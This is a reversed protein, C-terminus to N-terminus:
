GGPTATRLQYDLRSIATQYEPEVQYDSHIRIPPYAIDGDGYTDAPLIKVNTPGAPPKPRIEGGIPDTSRYLNDWRGGVRRNLEMLTAQNFFAPFWPAYLHQLPSGYTLVATQDRVYQPLQLVVATAIISGQSHASVIIDRGKDVHWKTRSAFEPLARDTYCPPALPHAHRPWFTTLDWLIGVSRRLKENKRARLMTVVLLGAFATIIWSGYSTAHDAIWHHPHVESAPAYGNKDIRWVIGTMVAAVGFAVLAPGVLIPGAHSTLGARATARKIQQRRRMREEAVPDQRVPKGRCFGILAHVLAPLRRVGTWLLWGGVLLLLAGAYIVALLLAGRSAWTFANPVIVKLAGNPKSQDLATTPRGLYDSVRLVIGASFMGGVLLAAGSLLASGAGKLAVHQARNEQHNVVGLVLLAGLLALQVIFAVVIAREVGPLPTAKGVHVAPDTLLLILLWVVIGIAAALAAVSAIRLSLRLKTVWGIATAVTAVSGVAFGVSAVWHLQKASGTVTYALGVATMASLLSLAAGIHLHRLFESPERDEWINPDDLGTRRGGEGLEELPEIDRRPVVALVSARARWARRALFWLTAIMALPILLTVAIRRPPSDLVSWGLYKTPTHASFCAKDNGCQWAMQDIAAVFVALLLTLSLSLAFLRAVAAHLSRVVRSRRRDSPPPIMAAATNALAFPALLVWLAQVPSGSTMGRWSYGELSRPRDGDNAGPLQADPDPLYIGTTADGTCETAFHSDLM